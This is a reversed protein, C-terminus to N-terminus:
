CRVTCCPGILAVPEEKLEDGQEVLHEDMHEAVHEGVRENVLKRSAEGAPVGKDAQPSEKLSYLKRIKYLEM